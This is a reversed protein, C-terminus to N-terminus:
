LPVIVRVQASVVLGAPAELTGVQEVDPPAVIVMAAPVALPLPETVTAVVAAVEAM